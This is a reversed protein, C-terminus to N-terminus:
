PCIISNEIKPIFLKNNVYRLLKSVITQIKINKKM